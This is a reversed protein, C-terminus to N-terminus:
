KVGSINKCYRIHIIKDVDTTQLSIFAGCKLIPVFMADFLSLRTKIDM